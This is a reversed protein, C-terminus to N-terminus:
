YMDWETSVKLLSQRPLCVRKQHKLKRKHKYFANRPLWPRITWSLGHGSAKNRRNTFSCVCFTPFGSCLIFFKFYLSKRAEFKHLKQLSISQRWFFFFHRYISYGKATHFKKKWVKHTKNNSKLDSGQQNLIICFNRARLTFLASKSGLGRRCGMSATHVQVSLASAGLFLANWDCLRGEYCQLCWLWWLNQLRANLRNCLHM